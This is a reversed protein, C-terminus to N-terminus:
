DLHFVGDPGYGATGSVTIGYHDYVAGAADMDVWRADLEAEGLMCLGVCAPGNFYFTAGDQSMTYGVCIVYHDEALYTAQDSPDDTNYVGDGASSWAQLAIVVPSGCDLSAMLDGTSIGSRAEADVSRRALYALINGPSTGAEETTGLDREVYALNIDGEYPFLWNMVMQVCAAGCTYGGYQRLGPMRVLVDADALTGEYPGAADQRAAQAAGATDPQQAPTPSAGGSELRQAPAAGAPEEEASGRM